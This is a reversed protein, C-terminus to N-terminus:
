YAYAYQDPHIDGHAYRYSDSDVDTYPDPHEHAHRDPDTDIDANRDSCGNAHGDPDTDNPM